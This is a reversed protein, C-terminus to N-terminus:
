ETVRPDENERQACRDEIQATVWGRMERPTECKSFNKGSNYSDWGIDFEKQAEKRLLEAAEVKAVVDGAIIAIRDRNSAWNKKAEDLTDRHFKRGGDTHIYKNTVKTVLLPMWSGIIAVKDGIEISETSM